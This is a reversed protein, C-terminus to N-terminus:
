HRPFCNILHNISWAIVHVHYISKKTLDIMYEFSWFGVSWYACSWFVVHALCWNILHGTSWVVLQDLSGISWAILQSHYISWCRDASNTCWGKISSLAGTQVAFQCTFWSLSRQFMKPSHSSVVSEISSSNFCRSNLIPTDVLQISDSSGRNSTSPSHELEFMVIVNSAPAPRIVGAPIYLTVQPGQSPWYRGVNFGNILAQGQFCWRGFM